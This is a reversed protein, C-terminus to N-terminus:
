WFLNILHQSTELENEISVLEASKSGLIYRYVVSLEDILEDAVDQKDDVLAILSELAELLLSPNM